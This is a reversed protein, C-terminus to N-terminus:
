GTTLMGHGAQSVVLVAHNGIVGRAIFQAHDHAAAFQGHELRCQHRRFNVTVFFTIQQDDAPTGGLAGDDLCDVPGAGLTALDGGAL